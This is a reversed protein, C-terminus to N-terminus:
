CWNDTDPTQDSSGPGLLQIVQNVDFRTRRSLQLIAFHHHFNDPFFWGSAVTFRFSDLLIGTFQHLEHVDIAPGM